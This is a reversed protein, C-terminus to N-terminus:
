ARPISPRTEIALRRTATAAIASEFEDRFLFVVVFYKVHVYAWAVVLVSKCGLSTRLLVLRTVDFFLWFVAAFVFVFDGFFGFEFHNILLL